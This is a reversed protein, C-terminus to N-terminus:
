RPSKMGSWATSSFSPTGGPGLVRDQHHCAGRRASRQVVVELARQEYLREPRNRGIRACAARRGRGGGRAAPPARPSAAEASCSGLVATSERESIYAASRTSPAPPVIVLSAASIPTGVKLRNAPACGPPPGHSSCRLASRRSTGRVLQQWETPPRGLGASRSARRLRVLSNSPWKTHRRSGQGVGASVAAACGGRRPGATLRHLGRSCGDPRERLRQKPVELSHALSRCHFPVSWYSPSFAVRRTVGSIGRRTPPSRHDLRHLSRREVESRRSPIPGCCLAAAQRPEDGGVCAVSTRGSSSARRLERAAEAGRPGASGPRRRGTSPSGSRSRTGPRRRGGRRASCSRSRM